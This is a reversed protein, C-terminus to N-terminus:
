RYATFDLIRENPLKVTVTMNIPTGVVEFRTANFQWIGNKYCGGTAPDLSYINSSGDELVFTLISQGAPSEVFEYSIADHFDSYIDALFADASLVSYQREVSDQNNLKM